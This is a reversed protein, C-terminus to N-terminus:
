LRPALLFGCGFLAAGVVAFGALMLDEIAIADRAYGAAEVFTLKAAEEAAAEEADQTFIDVVEERWQSYSPREDFMWELWPASEDTFRDVEADTVDAAAPSESYNRDAMFAPYEQEGAIEHFAIADSVDEKYTDFSLWDELYHYAFSDAAAWKMACMKGAAISSLALASCVIATGVGRSGLGAATLGIVAGIAWALFAFESYTYVYLLGWAIAGGIAPIVAVLIGAPRM